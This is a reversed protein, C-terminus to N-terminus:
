LAAIVAAVNLNDLQPGIPLSLVQNALREAIPFRRDAYGSKEYAQQLHPPIPYHILTAIGAKRLSKQL